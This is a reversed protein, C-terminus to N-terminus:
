VNVMTSKGTWGNACLTGDIAYKASGDTLDRTDRMMKLRKTMKEIQEKASKTEEAVEKTTEHWSTMQWSVIHDMIQQEEETVCGPIVIPKRTKPNMCTVTRGRIEEQMWALHEEMVKISGKPQLEEREFLLDEL